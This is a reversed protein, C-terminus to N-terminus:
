NKQPRLARKWKKVFARLEDLQCEEMHYDTILLESVQQCHKGAQELIREVTKKDIDFIRATARIGSGEALAKLM